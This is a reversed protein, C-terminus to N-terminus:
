DLFKMLCATERAIVVEEDTPIVRVTVHSGLKSIVAANADNDEIDLSVGLFELGACIRKRIEPAHEGVGGSFVIADLGGMAAALQGIALKARYCFLEIANAAHTDSQTAQLLTRVDSSSGSVGLLGCEHSLFHELQDATFSEARNIYAVLGPDLDGPRTGMMLGGLPTFGMTTDILKRERVAAMSAGSGLHAFIVRGNAADPDLRAFEDLLYAYSLGHFGFKRIGRSLYKQPIPQRKAVDPMDLHFATDYCAVQPVNKFRDQFLEILRIEMPLHTLDFLISQRLTDLVSATIREHQRAELGGFVVRHGVADPVPFDLESSELWELFSVAASEFGEASLPFLHKNGGSVVSLKADEQGIREVAGRAILRFAAQGEFFAFKISSSGGNITLVTKGPSDMNTDIRISKECGLEFSFSGAALRRQVAVPEWVRKLDCECRKTDVFRFNVSGVL